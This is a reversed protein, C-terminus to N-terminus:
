DSGIRWPLASLAHVQERLDVVGRPPIVVMLASQLFRKVGAGKAANALPIESDLETFTIASVVVDVGSLARVLSTESGKLDVPVVKVGRSELEKYATNHVSTPRALARM